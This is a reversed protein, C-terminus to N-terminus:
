YLNHIPSNMSLLIDIPCLVEFDKGTPRVGTVLACFVERAKGDM